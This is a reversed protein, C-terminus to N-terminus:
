GWICLIDRLFEEIFHLQYIALTDIHYLKDPYKDFAMYCYDDFLNWVNPERLKKTLLKKYIDMGPKDYKKPEILNEAAFKDYFNLSKLIEIFREKTNEILEDYSYTILQTKEKDAYFQITSRQGIKIPEKPAKQEKPVISQFLVKKLYKQHRLHHKYAIALKEKIEEETRELKRSKAYIKDRVKMHAQLEKNLIYFDANHRYEIKRRKELKAFHDELYSDAIEELIKNHHTYLYEKADLMRNPFFEIMNSYKLYEDETFYKTLDRNSKLPSDYFEYFLDKFYWLFNFFLIRNSRRIEEYENLEIPFINFFSLNFLIILKSIAPYNYIWTVKENKDPKYLEFKKIFQFLLDYQLSEASKCLFDSKMLIEEKTEQPIFLPKVLSSKLCNLIDKYMKEKIKKAARMFRVAEKESGTIDKSVDPKVTYSAGFLLIREILFEYMEKPTKGSLYKEFPGLFSSIPWVEPIFKLFLMPIDKNIIYKHIYKDIEDYHLKRISQDFPVILQRRDEEPINEWKLKLPKNLTKFFTENSAKDFFPTFTKDFNVLKHPDTEYYEEEKDFVLPKENIEKKTEQMAAILPYRM